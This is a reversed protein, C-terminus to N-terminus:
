AYSRFRHRRAIREGSLRSYSPKQRVARAYYPETNGDTEPGRCEVSTQCCKILPGFTYADDDVVVRDGRLSLSSLSTTERGGTRKRGRVLVTRVYVNKEITDTEGPTKRSFSPRRTRIAPALERRRTRDNKPADTSSGPAESSPLFSDEEPDELITRSM